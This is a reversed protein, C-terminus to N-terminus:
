LNIYRAKNKARFYLYLCIRCLSVFRPRWFLEWYLSHQGWAFVRLVCSAKCCVGLNRRLNSLALRAFYDHNSISSSTHIKSYAYMIVCTHRALSLASGGIFICYVCVLSGLAFVYFGLNSKLAKTFLQARSIRDHPSLSIYLLAFFYVM